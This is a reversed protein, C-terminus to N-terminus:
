NDILIGQVRRNKARGEASDNSTAPDDFGFGNLTIRDVNIGEKNVLYDRVASARKHSLKVNYERSGVNDTHGALVIRAEPHSRMYEAVKAIVAFYQSKVEFKDFDFLINEWEQGMKVEKGGMPAQDSMDFLAGTMWEPNGLLDAFSVMYSCDNVNSIKQMQKLGKNEAGADLVAFCVDYQAALEAAILSPSKYRDIPTYQADTFLFVVTRGKLTPLVTHLENLGQQLLTPGKPERPMKDLTRHFKQKDYAQMPYYVTLNDTGHGPTFSFIGATWNMEPLTANKDRLIKREAELKTIGTNLFQSGMSDSRDYMIIFNDAVRSMYVPSGGWNYEVTEHGAASLSSVGYVLLCIMTLLFSKLYMVVERLTVAPFVAEEADALLKL